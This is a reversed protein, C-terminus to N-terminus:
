YREQASFFFMKDYRATVGEVLLLRHTVLAQPLLPSRTAQRLRLLLQTRLLKSSNSNSNSPLGISTTLLMIKTAVMHLMLIPAAMTSPMTILPALPLLLKVVLAQVQLPNIAAMATTTTAVTAVTAAVTVTEDVMTVIAVATAVM